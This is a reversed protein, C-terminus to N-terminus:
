FFTSVQYLLYQLSGKLYYSSSSLAHFFVFSEVQLKSVRRAKSEISVWLPTPITPRRVDLLEWM